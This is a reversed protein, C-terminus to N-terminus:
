KKNEKLSKCFLSKIKSWFKGKSFEEEHPTELVWPLSINYVVIEFCQRDEQENPYVPNKNVVLNLFLGGDEIDFEYEGCKVCEGVATYAVVYYDVRGKKYTSCIEEPCAIDIGFDSLFNKLKPFTNEAQRYYNKCEDCDCLTKSAYYEKTKEIDVDFVYGDKEIISMDNGGKM